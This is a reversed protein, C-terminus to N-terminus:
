AHDGARNAKIKLGRIRFRGSSNRIRFRHYRGNQRVPLVGSGGTLTGLSTFSLDDLQRGIDGVRSPAFDDRRHGLVEIADTTSNTLCEWDVFISDVHINDHGVHFDKTDVFASNAVPSVTDACERWLDDESSLWWDGLSYHYGSTLFCSARPFEISTSEGSKRLNTWVLRSWAGSTAEYCLATDGSTSQPWPVIIVQKHRRHYDVWPATTFAAADEVLEQLYERIPGSVDRLQGDYLMMDQGNYFLVGGPIAKALGVTGQLGTWAGNEDVLRIRTFPPRRLTPRFGHIGKETFVLLTNNPGRAMAQVPSAADDLIVDGASNSLDADWETPDNADSWAVRHYEQTYDSGARACMAGVIRGAFETIIAPHLGGTTPTILTYTTPTTGTMYAMSTGSSLLAFGASVVIKNDLHAFHAPFALYADARSGAPSIESASPNQVSGDIRWLWLDSNSDAGAAILQSLSSPNRALGTVQGDFSGLGVIKSEIPIAAECAGNIAYVNQCWSWQDNRISAPHASLNLGGGFSLVPIDEFASGKGM